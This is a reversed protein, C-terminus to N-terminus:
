RADVSVAGSPPYRRNKRNKWKWKTTTNPDYAITWDVHACKSVGKTLIDKQSVYDHCCGGIVLLVRIPKPTDQAM